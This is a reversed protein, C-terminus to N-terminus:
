FARAESSGPALHVLALYRERQQPNMVDATAQVLRRTLSACEADVARRQEVFRAFELFDIQGATRREREFDNLEARMRAVQAALAMMRPASSDHIVKIRDFQKESLRLETKMWAIDNGNAHIEVPKRLYFWAFHAAFAGALGLLVVILAHKM